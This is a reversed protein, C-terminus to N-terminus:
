ALLIMTWPIASLYTYAVVISAVAGCVVPTAPCRAIWGLAVFCGLKTVSLVVFPGFIGMLFRLLVNGEEVHQLGIYTIAGDYAVLFAALAVLVTLLRQAMM